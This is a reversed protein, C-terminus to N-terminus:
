PAWGKYDIWRRQVAKQRELVLEGKADAAVPEAHWTRKDCALCKLFAKYDPPLADRVWLCPKAHSM